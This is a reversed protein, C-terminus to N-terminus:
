KALKHLLGKDEDLIKRLNKSLRVKEPSYHKYEKLVKLIDELVPDPAKELEKQIEKKVEERSM